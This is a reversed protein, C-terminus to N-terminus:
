FILSSDLLILKSLDYVKKELKLDKNVEVIHSLLSEISILLSDVNFNFRLSEIFKKEVEAYNVDGLLVCDEWPHMRLYKEKKSINEKIQYTHFNQLKMAMFICLLQIQQINKCKVISWRLFYRKFLQVAICAFQCYSYPKNKEFSLRECLKIVM